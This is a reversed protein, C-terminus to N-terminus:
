IIMSYQDFFHKIKLAITIKIMSSINLTDTNLSKLKFPCLNKYFILGLM